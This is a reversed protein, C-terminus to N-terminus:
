RRRGNKRTATACAINSPDSAGASNYAEVVYCYYIGVVATTDDYNTTAGDVTGIPTFTGTGYSRYITYGDVTGESPGWSLRITVPTSTPKALLMTALVLTALWGVLLWCIVKMQGKRRSSAFMPVREPCPMDVGTRVTQTGTKSLNLAWTAEREEQM